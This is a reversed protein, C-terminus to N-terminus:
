IFKPLFTLKERGTFARLEPELYSIQRFMYVVRSSYRQLRNILFYELYSCYKLMWKLKQSPVLFKVFSRNRRPPNSAAIDNASKRSIPHNGRTGLVLLSKLRIKTYLYRIQDETMETEIVKFVTDHDKNLLDLPGHVLILDKKILDREIETTKTESEIEKGLGDKKSEITKSEREIEKGLVDKKSETTKTESKIEKGPDDM